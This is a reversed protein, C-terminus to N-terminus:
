QSQEVWMQAVPHTGLSSLPQGETGDPFTWDVVSHVRPVWAVMSFGHFLWMFTLDEAFREQVIDYQEKRKVPDPESRGKDLADDVEPDSLRSFNLSIGGSGLLAGSEDTPISSSHWWVYEADPDPNGFWQFAIAQYDGSVLKEIYKTMEYSKTDATIGSAALQEQVVLSSDAVETLGVPISFEFSIPKGHKAEYEAALEAALEPNYEPIKDSLDTYWPSDPAYPGNAVEFVDLFVTQLLDERNIAHAVAQRALPDDFPERLANVMMMGEEGEASEKNDYVKVTGDECPDETCAISRLEEIGNASVSMQIVDLDGSTLSTVRASSDVIPQFVIEDLYPLGDRWYSDNKTVVLQRDPEWNDFVFPGTGVPDLAATPELGGSGTSPDMGLTEPKAVVGVQGALYVDFAVWPVNMSVSLTLDDIIEVGFEDDATGVEGDPGAAREIPRLAAGTLISGLHAKFNLAVSESTVATGDHFKVGDRLTITWVDYTDNPEVSEALYPHAQGDVDIETLHDYIAFAVQQGSGAWRNAAPNWGDTEAGLGYTVSGGSEPELDADEEFNVQDDPKTADRKKGCAGAVLSLVLLTCLLGTSTRKWGTM